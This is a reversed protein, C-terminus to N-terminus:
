GQVAQTDFEQAFLKVRNARFFRSLNANRPCAECQAVPVTRVRGGLGDDVAPELGTVDTLHIGVPVEGDDVARLVQDDTTAVVDVGALDLLREVRVGVDDLRRDDSDGVVM